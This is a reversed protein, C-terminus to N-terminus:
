EEENDSLLLNAPVDVTAGANTAVKYTDLAIQHIEIIEKSLSAIANAKKTEAAIIISKNEVDIGDSPDMEEMDNLREIQEFLINNLDVLKNRTKAKAM